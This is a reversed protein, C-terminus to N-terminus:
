IDEDIMRLAARIARATRYHVMALEGPGISVGPTAFISAQVALSGSSILELMNRTKVTPPVLSTIGVKHEEATTSRYPALGDVEVVVTFVNDTRDLTVRPAGFSDYVVSKNESM